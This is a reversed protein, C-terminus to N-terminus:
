SSLRDRSFALEGGVWTQAVGYGADLLVLDAVAGPAIVGHGALGLERAATTSTLTAADGLSLNVVTVLRAFARDMTLTSGALTGDALRAVDGVTIPRGGLTANSGPPLGSGATGDTIGMVKSPGKAAIAARMAAPHVHVADAILEAAVEDSELVAGVVGPSRHTLPTMRNYLHTAHRAGAEIAARAQEYTAATHGIAVRHGRAVLSAILDIAGELEPALTVIGVDAAAAEIVALIDQATFEADRESAGRPARLRERPQAGAFEPSIFNSELHAPLVRASAKAPVTRARGIAALASRLEGPTCAITTPCFATVGYRPLRAAMQAVADAQVLTDYGEVGHVHVDIFGPVALRGSVDVSVDRPGGARTGSVIDVIRGGDIVVTSPGTVRDPLVLEAGSLLIM